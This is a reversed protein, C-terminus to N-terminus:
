EYQGRLGPFENRCLLEGQIVACANVPFIFYKAAKIWRYQLINIINKQKGIKELSTKL